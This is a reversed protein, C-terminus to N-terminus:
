SQFFLVNRLRGTSFNFTFFIIGLILVNLIPQWFFTSVFDFNFLYVANFAVVGVLSFLFILLNYIVSVVFGLLILSYLSRNTFFNSFLFNIAIVSFILSLSTVGFPLATYLEFFLGSVFAWILAQRYSVIVALFTILSLMLNLSSIPRPWTTLFSVQVMGVLIVVFINILIRNM